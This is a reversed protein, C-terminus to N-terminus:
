SAKQELLPRLEPHKELLGVVELVKREKQRRQWTRIGFNQREEEMIEEFEEPHLAILRKVATRHARQGRKVVERHKEKRIEDLAKEEETM